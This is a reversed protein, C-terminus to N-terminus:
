PINLVFKGSKTLDNLLIYRKKNRLFDKPMKGFESSNDVVLLSEKNKGIVTLLLNDETSFYSKINKPQIFFTDSKYVSFLELEALINEMEEEDLQELLKKPIEKSKGLEAIAEYGKFFMDSENSHAVPLSFKKPYQSFPSAYYVYINYPDFTEYKSIPLKIIKKTNEM